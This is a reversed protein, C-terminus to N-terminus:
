LAKYTKFYNLVKHQNVAIDPLYLSYNRVWKLNCVLMIEYQM